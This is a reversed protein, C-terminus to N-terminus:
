LFAFCGGVYHKVNYIDRGGEWEAWTANVCLELAYLANTEFNESTELTYQLAEECDPL